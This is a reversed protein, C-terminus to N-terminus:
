VKPSGVGIIIEYDCKREQKAIETNNPEMGAGEFPNVKSSTLSQRSTITPMKFENEITPVEISRCKKEVVRPQTEIPSEENSANALPCEISVRNETKTTSSITSVLDHDVVSKNLNSKDASVAAEVQIDMPEDMIIGHNNLGADSSDEVNIPKLYDEHLVTNVTQDLLVTKNIIAKEAQIEETLTLGTVNEGNLLPGEDKQDIIVPVSDFYEEGTIINKTIARTMDESLSEHIITEEAPISEGETQKLATASVGGDNLHPEEDKQDIIVAVPDLYEDAFINKTVDGIMGESLRKNIIAEEALISEDEAPTLGTVSIEKDNSLSEEDKQDIMVAVSDLCEEGTIINNTIVRTLDEPLSKQVITEEASTLEGIIKTFETISIPKLDIVVTVPSLDEESSSTNTIAEEAPIPEVDNPKFGVVSLGEKNFYDKEEDPNKFVTTTKTDQVIGKDEPTMIVTEDISMPEGEDQAYGDNLSSPTDDEDPLPVSSYDFPETNEQTSAAISKSQGSIKESSEGIEDFPGSKDHPLVLKEEVFTKDLSIQGMFSALSDVLPDCDMQPPM